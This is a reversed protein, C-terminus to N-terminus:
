AEVRRKIGRLMRAQMVCRGFAAAVLMLPRPTHAL